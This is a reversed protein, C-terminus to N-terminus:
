GVAVGMSDSKVTKGTEEAVEVGTAELVAVPEDGVADVALVCDEKTLVAVGTTGTEPSPERSVPLTDM